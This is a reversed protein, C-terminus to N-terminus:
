CSSSASPRTPRCATHPSRGLLYDVGILYGAVALAVSAAAGAGLVGAIFDGRPTRWDACWCAPASCTFAVATHTSPRGPHTMGDFDIGLPNDVGVDVGTAEELLTLGALVFM